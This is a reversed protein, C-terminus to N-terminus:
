CAGEFLDFYLPERVKCYAEIRAFAEESLNEFAVAIGRTGDPREGNRVWRVSAEVELPEAGAQGSPLAFDLIMRTGVDLVRDTAIFMGGQSVDATEAQFFHKDAHVFVTLEVPIRCARRREAKDRLRSDPASDAKLRVVSGDEHIWSPLRERATGQDQSM